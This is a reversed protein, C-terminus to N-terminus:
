DSQFDDVIRQLRDREGTTAELDFKMTAVILSWDQLKAILDEERAAMSQWVKAIQSLFLQRVNDPLQEAMKQLIHLNYSIDDADSTQETM